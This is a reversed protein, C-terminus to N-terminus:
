TLPRAWESVEVDGEVPEARESSSSVVGIITLMIGAEVGLSQLAVLLMFGIVQMSTGGVSAGSPFRNSFVGRFHRSNLVTFILPFGASFLLVLGLAVLRRNM